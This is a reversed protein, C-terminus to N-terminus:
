KESSESSESSVSGSEPSKVRSEVSSAITEIEKKEAMNVIYNAAYYGGVAGLGIAAIKGVMGGMPKKNYLWYGAYAGLAAAGYPIVQKTKM